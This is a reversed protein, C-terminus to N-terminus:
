RTFDGSPISRRLSRRSTMLESLTPKSEADYPYAVLEVVNPASKQVSPYPVTPRITPTGIPNTM